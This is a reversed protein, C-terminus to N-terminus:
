ECVADAAVWTPAYRNQASQRELAEPSAHHLQPEGGNWRAVFYHAVRGSRPNVSEYLQRELTFQVGTEEELERTAADEFREADEVSGGPVVFYEGRESKFRRMLLVELRGDHVRLIFGGARARQGHSSARPTASPNM